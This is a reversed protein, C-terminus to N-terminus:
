GREAYGLGHDRCYHCKRMTTTRGTGDKHCLYIGARSLDTGPPLAERM